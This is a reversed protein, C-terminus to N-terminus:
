GDICGLLCGDEAGVVSGLLWGDHREEPIEILQIIVYLESRTLGIYYTLRGRLDDMWCVMMVAM